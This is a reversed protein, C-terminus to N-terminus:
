STTPTISSGVENEFFIESNQMCTESHNETESHTLHHVTIRRHLQDLSDEADRRHYVQEPSLSSTIIVHTAVFPVPERGRRSLTYPWKDILQLLENYPIEGRFDNIIVTSQGTYGDQWGKDNKWLYHTSPHYGNFAHHSKGVGTPGHFWDCTTMETRFRQRLAIDEAKTLTRGYQHYFEPNSLCIDETSATGSTIEQVVAAIDRRTGQGQSATGETEFRKHEKESYDTNEGLSGQAVQLDGYGTGFHKVFKKNETSWKRPPTEYYGDIHAKGTEPCHELAAHYYNWHYRDYMNRLKCFDDDESKIWLVLKFRRGSM